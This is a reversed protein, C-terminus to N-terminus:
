SIYASYLLLPQTGPQEIISYSCWLFCMNGLVWWVCGCKIFLHQKLVTCFSWLTYHSMYSSYLCTMLEDVDSQYLVYFFSLFFLISFSSSSTSNTDGAEQHPFVILLWGWDPLAGRGLALPWLPHTETQKYHAPNLLRASRPGQPVM